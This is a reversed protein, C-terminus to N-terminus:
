KSWDNFRQLQTSPIEGSPIFFLYRECVLWRVGMVPGAAIHQRSANINIERDM